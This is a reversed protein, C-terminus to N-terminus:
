GKKVEPSLLGDKVAKRGRKVSVAGTIALYEKLPKLEAEIATKQKTLEDFRKQALEQLEKM